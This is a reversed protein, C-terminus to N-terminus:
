RARDETQATGPQDPVPQTGVSGSRQADLLAQFIDSSFFLAALLIMLVPGSLVHMFWLVAGLVPICCFVTGIMRDESINSAETGEFDVTPNADGKMKWTGPTDGVAYIRHTIPDLAPIDIHYAVIDGITFDRDHENLLILCGVPFVPEMSGSVVEYARIGFNPLVLLIMVLVSTFGGILVDILIRYIALIKRALILVRNSM